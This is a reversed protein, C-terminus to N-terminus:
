DFGKKYKAKIKTMARFMKKSTKIRSALGTNWSSKGANREHMTVPLHVVKYGKKLAMHYVEIDIGFDDELLDHLLERNVIVPMSMVDKMKKKFIITAVMGMGKTFFNEIARRGQRRGKLLILDGKHEKIFIFFQELEKPYMQMDGHIWGVYKGSAEKIGQKIGYGYGQNKDVTVFRINKDFFYRQGFDKIVDATHDTSGNNVIIYEVSCDCEDVKEVIHEILLPINEAENYCPIIISVLPTM